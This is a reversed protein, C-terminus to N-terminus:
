TPAAHSAGPIAATSQHKEAHAIVPLEMTITSGGGSRESIILKGDVKNLTTRAIDLGLGTGEGGSQGRVIQSAAIGPGRDEIVVQCRDDAITVAVSFPTEDPTHAFVNAVLADLAAQLDAAALTVLRDEHPLSLKIARGQNQALATWFRMRDAIVEVIRCPTRDVPSARAAAIAADVGATLAEVDGLILDRDQGDALGEAHLRLATLPTRLRHSLDAAAEREAVMLESIREALRNVSLAVSRVERPGEIAARASLDGATLRGTTAELRRVPRVISRALRDAVLVALVVLVTGIVALFTWDRGLGRVIQSRSVLVRVVATGEDQSPVAVIVAGDPARSTTTKGRRADNLNPSGPLLRGVRSGDPLMVEIQRRTSQSNAQAVVSTVEQASPRTQLVAAISRAQLEGADIAQDRAQNRLMFALPIVFGLVVMTTVLATMVALSTRTRWGGGRSGKTM